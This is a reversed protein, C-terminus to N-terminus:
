LFSFNVTNLGPSVAVRQMKKRIADM